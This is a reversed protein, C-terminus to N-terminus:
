NRNPEGDIVERLDVPRLNPTGLGDRLEDALVRRTIEALGLRTRGLPGIGFQQALRDFLITAEAEIRVAPHARIQGVSGRTFLGVDAIVRQAARIRSYQVCLQELMPVDVRDVIGCAVLDPVYARWLARADEPLHAPPENLEDRRPRGAILGPPAHRDPRFTGERLHVEVAKRAPM